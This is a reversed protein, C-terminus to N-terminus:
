PEWVILKKGSSRHHVAEPALSKYEIDSNYDHYGYITGQSIYPTTTITTGNWTLTAPNAVTITGSTANTLVANSSPNSIVLGGYASYGKRKQIASM